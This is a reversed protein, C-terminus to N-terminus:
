SFKRQLGGTPAANSRDAARLPPRRAKKTTSSLVYYMTGEAVKAPLTSVLETVQVGVPLGAAPAVPELNGTAPNCFM